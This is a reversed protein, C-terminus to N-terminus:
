FSSIFVNPCSLFSLIAFTPIFRFLTVILSVANSRFALTEPSLFTFLLICTVPLLPRIGKAHYGGLGGLRACGLPRGDSSAYAPPLGLMGSSSRCRYRRLCILSNESLTRSRQLHDRPHTSQLFWLILRSHTERWSLAMFPHWFPSPGTVRPRDIVTSVSKM